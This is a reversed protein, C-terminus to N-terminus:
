PCQSNILWTWLEVIKKCSDHHIYLNFVLFSPHKISKVRRLVGPLYSAPPLLCSTEGSCSLLGPTSAPSLDSRGPFVLYVVQEEGAVAM